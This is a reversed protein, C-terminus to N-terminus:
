LESVSAAIRDKEARKRLGVRKIRVNMIYFEHGSGVV